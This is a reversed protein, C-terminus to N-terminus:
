YFARPLAMLCDAAHFVSQSMHSSEACRQIKTFFIHKPKIMADGNKLLAIAM